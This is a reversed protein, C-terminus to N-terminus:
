GFLGVLVLRSGCRTAEVLRCILLVCGGAFPAADAPLRRSRCNGDLVRSTLSWCGIRRVGLRDRLVDISIRIIGCGSQWQGLQAVRVTLEVTRQRGGPSTLEGQRLPEGDAGATSKWAADFWVIGIWMLRLRVVGFHPMFQRRGNTRVRISEGSGVRPLTRSAASGGFFYSSCARESEGLGLCRRAAVSESHAAPLWLSRGCKVRRM